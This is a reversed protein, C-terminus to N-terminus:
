DIRLDQAASLFRSITEVEADSFNHLLHEDIGRLIDMVQERALLGDTTLHVTKGRGDSQMAKRSVLGSTEMRSVLGTISSNNSGVGEALESLQCGNHYGLYVLALAQAPKLGATSLAREAQRALFGHARDFVSFIRRHTPRAIAM